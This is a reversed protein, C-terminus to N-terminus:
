VPHQSRKRQDRVAVLRMHEVFQGTIGGLSCYPVRTTKQGRHVNTLSDPAIRSRRLYVVAPHMDLVM